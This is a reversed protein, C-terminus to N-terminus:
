DMSSGQSPPIIKELYFFLFVIICSMWSGMAAECYFSFRCTLIRVGFSEMNVNSIKLTDCQLSFAGCNM